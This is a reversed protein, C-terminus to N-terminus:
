FRGSFSKHFRKQSDAPVQWFSRFGRRSSVGKRQSRKLVRNTEHFVRFGEFGGPVEQMLDDMVWPKEKLCGLEGM